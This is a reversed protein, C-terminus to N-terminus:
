RDAVTVECRSEVCGRVFWGVPMMQVRSSSQSCGGERKGGRDVMETGDGKWSCLATAICFAGGLGKMQRKREM